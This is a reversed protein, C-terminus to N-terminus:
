RRIEILLQGNSKPKVKFADLLGKLSEEAESPIYADVTISRPGRQVKHAIGLRDYEQQFRKLVQEPDKAQIIQAGEVGRLVVGDGINPEEPSSIQFRTIIGIGIALVAVSAAMAFWRPQPRWSKRQPADLLGEARLRFLLKEFEAQSPAENSEIENRYWQEIADRLADVQRSGADQGHGVTQERLLALWADDDMEDNPTPM